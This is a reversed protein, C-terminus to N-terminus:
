KDESLPHFYNRQADLISLASATVQFVLQANKKGRLTLTDSARGQITHPIHDKRHSGFYRHPFRKKKKKQKM